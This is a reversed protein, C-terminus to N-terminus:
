CPYLLKARTELLSENREIERADKGIVLDLHIFREKTNNGVKPNGKLMNKVEVTHLYTGGKLFKTCDHTLEFNASKDKRGDTPIKKDQDLSKQTDRKVYCSM